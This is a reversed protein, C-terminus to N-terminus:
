TEWNAEENNKILAKDIDEKIITKRGSYDAEKAAKVIIAKIEKDLYKGLALAAEPSARKRSKRIMRILTNKKLM